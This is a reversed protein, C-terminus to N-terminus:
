LLDKLKMCNQYGKITAGILVIARVFENFHISTRLTHISALRDEIKQSTLLM